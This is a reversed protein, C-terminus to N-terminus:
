IGRGIVYTLFHCVHTEINIQAFIPIPLNPQTWSSLGNIFQM